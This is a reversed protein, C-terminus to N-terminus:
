HRAHSETSRATRSRAAIRRPKPVAITSMRAQRIRLKRQYEIVDSNSRNDWYRLGAKCTSCCDSKSREPIENDCDEIFCYRTM